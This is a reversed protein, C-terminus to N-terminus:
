SAIFLETQMQNRERHKRKSTLTYGGMDTMLSNTHRCTGRQSCVSTGAPPCVSVVVGGSDAELGM